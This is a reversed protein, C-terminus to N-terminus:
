DEIGTHQDCGLTLPLVRPLHESGDRALCSIGVDRDRNNSQDFQGVTSRTGVRQFSSFLALLENLLQENGQGDMGNSRRESKAGSLDITLVLAFPM